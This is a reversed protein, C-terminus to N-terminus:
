KEKSHARANPKVGKQVANIIDSYEREEPPKKPMRGYYHIINLQIEWLTPADFYATTKNEIKSLECAIEYNSYWMAISVLHDVDDPWKSSHYFKPTTAPIWIQPDNYDKPEGVPLVQLMSIWKALRNTLFPGKSGKTKLIQKAEEPINAQFTTQINLLLPISAYSVPYKGLSALSWQDDEPNLSGRPHDKRLRALERQVTSLGLERGCIKSAEQRILEAKGERNQSYAMAVATREKETILPKRAM